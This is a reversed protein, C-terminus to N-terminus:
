IITKNNKFSSSQLSTMVTYLIEKLIARMVKMVTNRRPQEVVLSVSITTSGLCFVNRTPIVGVYGGIM